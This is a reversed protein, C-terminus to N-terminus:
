SPACLSIAQLRVHAALRNYVHFFYHAFKNKSIPKGDIQIRERVEILHPSSYFGTRIGAHRLISETFACTTGKGKTGAVHIVNLNDLMEKSVGVFDMTQRMEPLINNLNSFRDAAIQARV